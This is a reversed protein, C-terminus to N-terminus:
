GFFIYTYFSAILGIIQETFVSYVDVEVVGLIKQSLNQSFDYVHALFGSTTNLM